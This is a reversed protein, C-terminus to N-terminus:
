HNVAIQQVINELVSAAEDLEAATTPSGFSIRIFRKAEEPSKGMALMTRSPDQMGVQCATGTSIAIGYRNCELMVYQGEIRSLSLGIIQPLQQEEGGEVRIENGINQIKEVFGKRLQQYRIQRESMEEMMYQAAATFSLVSPTDVTGPRFGREHTTNKMQMKWEVKPNIYCMGTGKPGYIKHSSVSLSDIYSQKVDIPVEGFTQVCDAHFLVGRDQLIKGIEAIPQLTGIEPNGHHISALVTDERIAQQLQELSIRGNKQIPIYTVDFGEEELQRFLNYVSAHEVATTILHNGKERNAALISTIALINAESGGSTFYIGKEEGNMMQALQQRCITLVENAETGVDHLSSPNGFYKQQAEVFVDLVEKRMPTTAAYDLYIM